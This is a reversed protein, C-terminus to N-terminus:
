LEELRFHGAPLADGISAETVISTIKGIMPNALEMESSFPLLMGEVERFDGFETTQGLEGLGPIETMGDVRGVVWRDEDIYLTTAAGSTDGLRVLLVSRASEGEARSQSIRQIVQAKIGRKRWDGFRGALGVSFLAAAAKPSLEEVPKDSLKMRVAEGDSATASSQDGIAEDVRWRDQGAYWATRTGSLGQKTLNVDSTMTLAGLSSLLDVKHTAAIQDAVEDASPLSPEPDFRYEMHDGIHYGTVEGTDSRDFELVTGPSIKLKWRDGGAYILPVVAKGLIELAIGEEHLVISRYRDNEKTECYYGVHQELPPAADIPNFPVGLLLEGLKDEVLMGTTTGRSQTFYLVMAKQKPFAWAHTGDSGTHGFAVLEPEKDSETGDGTGKEPATMWLQILSGYNAQLGPFGTGGMMEAPGPKLARRVLSSRLLRGDPGRGKRMWMDLYKAYDIATSYLGQSGLFIPFLAEDEPSWFRTWNGSNGSYASSARARLPHGNGMLCTTEDMGLPALIRSEIFAEAPAGTVVEILATLTDTGQDSYNFDTGPEFELEAGAGLGAVARVSTLSRPDSAIIKSMPLGSTHQLLQEITIERTSEAEFAPLYKAIPDQLKIEKDELLMGIATGVLPKTMSRVCFVGGPEMPVEAEADRMGYAGHLVTRGNKIILLEGGVIDGSDVFGQVLDGLGAVVDPSLGQEIPTSAPFAAPAPSSSPPSDQLPALLFLPALLLGM